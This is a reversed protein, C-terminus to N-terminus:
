RHKNRLEMPKEYERNQEVWSINFMIQLPTHKVYLKNVNVNKNYWLLLLIKNRETTEEVDANDDERGM